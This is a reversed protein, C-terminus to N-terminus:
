LHGGRRQVDRDRHVAGNRWQREGDGDLERWQLSDGDCVLERASRLVEGAQILKQMDDSGLHGKRLKHSDVRAQTCLLREAPLARGVM